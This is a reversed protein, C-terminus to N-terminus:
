GFIDLGREICWMASLGGLVYVPIPMLRERNVTVQRMIVAHNILWWASIVLLLFAIQGIEIGINFFLLALPINNQPLGIEALAGAFGMGHLLGFGGALWWPYRRLVNRANTKTDSTYGRALELALMFVSLAIAFEILSVPYDLTVLTVVALTISHGVTFATITWLLRSGVGVLLLLGFVFMLHDVGGLIHEIGLVPYETMVKTQSPALPVLFDSNKANVVSQYYRGDRLTLTVMASAQNEALGAV